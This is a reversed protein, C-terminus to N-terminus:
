SLFINLQAFLIGIRSNWCLNLWMFLKKYATIDTHHHLVCQKTNFHNTPRFGATLFFFYVPHQVFTASASTFLPIYEILCVIPKHCAASSSEVVHNPALDIRARNVLQCLSNIIMCPVGFSKVTYLIFLRFNQQTM